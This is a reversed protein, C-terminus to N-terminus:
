EGDDDTYVSECGTCCNFGLKKSWCTGNTPNSSKTTTTKKTTTKEGDGEEDPLVYGSDKLYPFNDPLTTKANANGALPDDPDPTGCM